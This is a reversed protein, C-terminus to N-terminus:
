ATRPVIALMCHPVWFGVLQCGQYLIGFKRDLESLFCHIDLYLIAVAVFMIFMVFQRSPITTLYDAECDTSRPNIKSTLNHWFVKFFLTWLKGEQREANIPPQPSCTPLNVQQTKPLTVM